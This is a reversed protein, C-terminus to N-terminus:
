PLERTFSAVLVEAIKAISSAIALLKERDLAGRRVEEVTRALSSSLDRLEQAQPLAPRLSLGGVCASLAEVRDRLDRLEPGLDVGANSENTKRTAPKSRKAAARKAAAM